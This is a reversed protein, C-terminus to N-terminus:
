RGSLRLTFEHGLKRSELGSFDFFYEVFIAENYFPLCSAMPDVEIWFGVLSCNNRKMAFFNRLSRYPTNDFM